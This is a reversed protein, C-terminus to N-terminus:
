EKENEKYEEIKKELEESIYLNEYLDILREIIDDIFTELDEQMEYKSCSELNGYGNFKVFEDTYKYDGYCVARVAEDPNQYFYTDFFDKDNEQYDLWDLSGDYSNIDRVLELLDENELVYNKLEEM